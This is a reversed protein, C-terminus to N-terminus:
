QPISLLSLTNVVYWSVNAPIELEPVSMSLSPSGEVELTEYFIAQIKIENKVKFTEKLYENVDYSDGSISITKGKNNPDDIYYRDEDLKLKNSKKNFEAARLVKITLEKKIAVGFGEEFTSKLVIVRNEEKQSQVRTVFLGFLFVVALFNKM